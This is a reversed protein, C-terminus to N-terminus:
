NKKEGGKEASKEGGKEGKGDGKGPKEDKAAAKTVGFAKGVFTLSKMLSSEKFGSGWAHGGGQVLEWTHEIKQKDLMEHLAQNGPVFGRNDDTGADFYIHLGKFDTPKAKAALCLPNAQQWVTKDIPDGFVEDLGLRKAMGKM